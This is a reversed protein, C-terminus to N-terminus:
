EAINACQRFQRVVHKESCIGTMLCHMVTIHLWLRFSYQIVYSIIALIYLQLNNM